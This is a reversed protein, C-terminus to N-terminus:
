ALAWQPAHMGHPQATLSVLQGRLSWHITSVVFLQKHHPSWAINWASPFAASAGALLPVCVQLERLQLLHRAWAAPSDVHGFMITSTTKLGVRHAAAVVDLWQESTLKDPCLVARVQVM